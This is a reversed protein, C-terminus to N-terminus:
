NGRIDKFLKELIQDAEPNELMAVNFRQALFDMIHAKFEAIGSDIGQHFRVTRIANGIAQDLTKPTM